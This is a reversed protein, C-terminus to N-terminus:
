DVKGHMEEFMAKVTTAVIRAEKPSCKDVIDAIEGQSIHKSSTLSDCMLEDMSVGLSNAIKVLTPLSAKTAGREIHSLNTASIDMVTALAKQSLGKNRRVTKIRKGVAKYDIIDDAKEM